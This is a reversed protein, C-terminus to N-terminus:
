NQRADEQSLKPIIRAYLLGAARTQGAVLAYKTELKVCNRLCEAEPKDRMMHMSSCMADSVVGTLTKQEGPVQALIALLIIAAAALIPIAKVSFM